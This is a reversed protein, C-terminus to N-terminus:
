GRKEVYARWDGSDIRDSESVDRAYEYVWAERPPELLDVRTRVYLPDSGVAGEFRDFRELNAQQCRYLEGSVEGERDLKLGPFDGLDYLRGPMTCEGLSPLEEAGAREHNEFGRILTGYVALVEESM